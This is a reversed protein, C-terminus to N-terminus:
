ATTGGSAGTLDAQGSSGPVPADDALAMLERMRRAVTSKTLPPHARQGLEAFSSSPHRLRLQAVDRLAVPLSSVDLAAIVERQRHAASSARELNARDCNTLRNAEELMRAVVAAEDLSFVAVEAGM